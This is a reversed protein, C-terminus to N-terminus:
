HNSLTPSPCAVELYRMKIEYYSPLVPQIKEQGSDLAYNVSGPLWLLSCFHIADM